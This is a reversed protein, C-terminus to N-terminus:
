IEWKAYNIIRNNYILYMGDPAMVEELLQIIDTEMVAADLGDETLYYRFLEPNNKIAIYPRYQEEGALVCVHLFDLATGICYSCDGTAVYVIYPGTEKHPLMTMFTTDARERGAVDVCELDYIFSFTKLAQIKEGVLDDTSRNKDTMCSSLALAGLAVVFINLKNTM